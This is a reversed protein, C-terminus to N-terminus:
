DTHLETIVTLFQQYFVKNEIEKSQQKNIRLTTQFVTPCSKDWILYVILVLLLRNCKSKISKENYVVEQKVSRGDM